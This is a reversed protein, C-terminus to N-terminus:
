DQCSIAQNALRAAISLIHLYNKGAPPRSRKAQGAPISEIHRRAIYGQIWLLWPPQFVDIFTWIRALQMVAQTPM